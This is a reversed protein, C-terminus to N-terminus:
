DLHSLVWWTGLFTVIDEAVAIYFDQSRTAERFYQRLSYGISAGLVALLAGVAAGQWWSIYTSVALL